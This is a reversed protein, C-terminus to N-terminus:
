LATDGYVDVQFDSVKYISKADPDDPDPKKAMAVADSKAMRFHRGFQDVLSVQGDYLYKQFADSMEPGPIGTTAALKQEIDIIKQQDADDNKKRWRL